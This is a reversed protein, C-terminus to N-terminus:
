DNSPAVLQVETMGAWISQKYSAPLNKCSLKEQTLALKAVEISSNKGRDDSWGDNVSKNNRQSPSDGWVDRAVSSRHQGTPSPSPEDKTEEISSVQPVIHAAAAATRTNGCGMSKNSFLRIKGTM